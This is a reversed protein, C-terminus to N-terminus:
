EYLVTAEHSLASSCLSEYERIAETARKLFNGMQGKGCLGPRDLIEPFLLALDNLPTKIHGKCLSIKIDVYFYHVMAFLRHVPGSM